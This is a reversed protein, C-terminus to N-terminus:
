VAREFVALQLSHLFRNRPVRLLPAFGHREFVERLERESVPYQKLPKGTVWQRVRRRLTTYSCPSLYSIVVHRDAVRTAEAILRERLAPQAFHHLLRFCLVKDFSRGTYGTAFVDRREVTAEVAASRVERQATAVAAEGLDIGTARYGQEALWITARGVGCPADLVTGGPPGLATFATQLMHMEARHKAPKRRLYSEAAQPDSKIRALYENESM